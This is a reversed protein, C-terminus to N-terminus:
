KPAKPQRKSKPAVATKEFNERFLAFVEDSSTETELWIFPLDPRAAELAARGDGIEMVISGNKALHIPAARLIRLVLDLGTKGGDHALRPEARYEPPFSEVAGATVYPPNTLILDYERGALAEFLDSQLVTIRDELGYAQVNIRAIDLAGPSIDAADIKANPFAEAALIAIAGSGTCLDLVHRVAGTEPVVHSLQTTCLLEGIFSRPIIVREDVSFRRGQIYAAGILYAAPKRTEIRTRILNLVRQRESHTLRCDLWPELEDVPLHLASLILFAAEDISRSTGHGYSLKAANFQTVGYRLYDRLTVLQDAPSNLGAESSM